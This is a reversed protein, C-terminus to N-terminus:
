ERVFAVRTKCLNDLCEPIIESEPVKYATNDKIILIEKAEELKKFCDECINGLCVEKPAEMDDKLKGFLIIHMHKDCLTCKELSANLGYNDSLIIGDDEETDDEEVDDVEVTHFQIKGEHMGYRTEKM